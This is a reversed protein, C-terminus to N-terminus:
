PYPYHIPSPFVSWAMLPDESTTTSTRRVMVARIEEGSAGGGTRICGGDDEWAMPPDACINTTTRRVMQERLEEKGPEVVM